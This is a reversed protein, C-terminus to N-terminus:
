FVLYYKFTDVQFPKQARPVARLARTYKNTPKNNPRHLIYTYQVYSYRRRSCHQFVRAQWVVYIYGFIVRSGFRPCIKHHCCCCCVCVSIIFSIKMMMLSLLAQARASSGRSICAYVRASERTITKTATHINQM